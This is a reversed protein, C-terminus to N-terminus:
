LYVIKSVVVLFHMIAFDTCLSEHLKDLYYLSFRAAFTCICSCLARVCSCLCVCCSHAYLCVHLSVWLWGTVFIFLLVPIVHPYLSMLSFRVCVNMCACMWLCFFIIDFACVSFCFLSLSQLLIILRRSSFCFASSLEHHPSETFASLSGFTYGYMTCPVLPLELKYVRLCESEITLKRWGYVTFSFM